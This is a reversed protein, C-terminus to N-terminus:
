KMLNPNGRDLVRIGTGGQEVLLHRGVGRYRISDAGIVYGSLFLVGGGGGLQGDVFEVHVASKSVDLTFAPTSRLRVTDLLKHLPRAGFKVSAPGDAYVLIGLQLPAVGHVGMSDLHVQVARAPPPSNEATTCGTSLIVLACIVSLQRQLVFTRRVM